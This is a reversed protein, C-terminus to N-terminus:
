HSRGIERAILRLPLGQAALEAIRWKELESLREVVVCRGISGVRDFPTIRRDGSVAASISPHTTTTPHGPRAVPVNAITANQHLPEPKAPVSRHESPTFM